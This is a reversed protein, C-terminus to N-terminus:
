IARLGPWEFAPGDFALGEFAAEGFAKASLWFEPTICAGFGRAGGEAAPLRIDSKERDELFVGVDEFSLERVEDGAGYLFAAFVFTLIM